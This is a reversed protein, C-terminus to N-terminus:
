GQDLKPEQATSAAKDDIVRQGQTGESAASGPKLNEMENPLAADGASQEEQPSYSIAAQHM